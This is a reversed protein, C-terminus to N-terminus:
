FGGAFPSNKDLDNIFKTLDETTRCSTQTTEETNKNKYIFDHCEKMQAEDSIKDKLFEFIEPHTIGVISPSRPNNKHVSIYGAEKLVTIVQKYYDNSWGLNAAQALEKMKNSTVCFVLRAQILACGLLAWAIKAAPHDEKKINNFIKRQLPPLKEKRGSVIPHLPFVESKVLQSSLSM